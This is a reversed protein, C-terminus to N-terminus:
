TINNIRSEHANHFSNALRKAEGLLLHTVGDANSLSGDCVILGAHARRLDPYCLRNSIQGGLFPHWHREFFDQCVFRGGGSRGGHGVGGLAAM